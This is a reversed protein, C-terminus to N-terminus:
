FKTVDNTKGYICYRRVKKIPPILGPFEVGQSYLWHLLYGSPRDKKFAILVFWSVITLIGPVVPGLLISGIGGILGLLAIDELELGFMLLPKDLTRPCKRYM